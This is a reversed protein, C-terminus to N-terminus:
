KGFAAGIGAGTFWHKYPREQFYLFQRDTRKAFELLEDNDLSTDSLIIAGKNLRSRIMEYVIAERTASRDSDYVFVDVGRGFGQLVESTDGYLIEGFLAYEGQLLYGARPNTDIGYYYGKYGEESNKMLAATLVCAGLGKDVGSEVIVEPKMARVIAYWGSRKGYKATSDAVSREKSAKTTNKVHKRLNNDNELEVIYGLIEHYHRETVQSVFAALHRKNRDELDYTFNTFEKSRVLWILLQKTPHALYKLAVIIRYMVLLGRGFLPTRILFRKVYPKVYVTALDKLSM